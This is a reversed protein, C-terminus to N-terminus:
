TLHTNVDTIIYRLTMALGHQDSKAFFFFLLFNLEVFSQRLLM